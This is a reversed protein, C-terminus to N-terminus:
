LGQIKRSTFKVSSISKTHDNTNSFVINSDKTTWNLKYSIRGDHVRSQPQGFKTILAEELRIRYTESLSNDQWDDFPSITTSHLKNDVFQFYVNCNIGAIMKKTYLINKDISSGDTDTKLWVQSKYLNKIQAISMGWKTNEYAQSNLFGYLAFMIWVIRM